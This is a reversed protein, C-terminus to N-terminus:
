QKTVAFTYLGASNSGSGITGNMDTANTVYKGALSFTGGGSTTYTYSAKVSDGVLVWNGNAIDPATPNNAEILLSGGANFTIALYRSPGVAATTLGVWKGAVTATQPTTDDKSCSTAILLLAMGASLLIKKM